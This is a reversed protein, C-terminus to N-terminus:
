VFFSLTFNRKLDVILKYSPQFLPNASWKVDELHPNYFYIDNPNPNEKLVEQLDMQFSTEKGNLKRRGTSFHKLWKRTTLIRNLHEWCVRCVTAWCPFPSRQVWKCNVDTHHHDSQVYQAGKIKYQVSRNAKGLLTLFGKALMNFWILDFIEITFSPQFDPLKPLLSNQLCHSWHGVQSTNQTKWNRIDFRDGKILTQFPPPRMKSGTEGLCHFGIFMPEETHWIQFERQAPSRSWDPPCLGESTPWYVPIFAVSGAGGRDPCLEIKKGDCIQKGRMNSKALTTGCCIGFGGSQM